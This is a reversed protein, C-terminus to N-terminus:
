VNWWDLFSLSCWTYFVHILYGPQDYDFVVFTHGLIFRLLIWFPFFHCHSGLLLGSFSWLCHVKQKNVEPTWYSCQQVMALYSRKYVNQVHPHRYRLFNINFTPKFLSKNLPDRTSNEGRWSKKKSKGRVGWGM